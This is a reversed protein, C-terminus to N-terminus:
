KWARCIAKGTSSAADYGELAQLTSTNRQFNFNSFRSSSAMPPRGPSSARSDNTIVREASVARDFSATLSSRSSSAHIAKPLELQSSSYSPPLKSDAISSRSSGVPTNSRSIWVGDVEIGSELARIGFPVEDGQPEESIPQAELMEANQKQKGKEVATYKRLRYRDFQVKCL